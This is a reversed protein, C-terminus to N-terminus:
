TLDMDILQFRSTCYELRTQTCLCHMARDTFLEVVFIAFVYIGILDFRRKLRLGIVAQSAMFSELGLTFTSM